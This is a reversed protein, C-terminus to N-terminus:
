RDGPPLGPQEEVWTLLAARSYHGGIERNHPPHVHRWRRLAAVSLNILRAARSPPRAAVASEGM